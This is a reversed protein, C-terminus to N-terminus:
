EAIPGVYRTAVVVHDFWVVHRRGEPEHHRRVATDTVYYLLWFFNLKLREDTRFDFGEFAEGTEDGLLDFGMGTWKGRQVGRHVDMILKGDLWLALRGDRQGPTNLKMMVEVCQWRGRPAAQPQVPWISNGWYKGDASKKMEHWYTYFNWDGPAQVKGNRGFPEIGVTVREDGRPKEGAGGQPWRTAPRYGGLHVFHHVYGADQPFKVYFRAFVQDVGDFTTYLHGGTNHDLSATMQIARKGGSGPASDAALAMVDGGKNSMEGWRKAIDQLDGREFDEAFLVAPDDGIGRDGPHAKALGVGEPLPQAMVQTTVIVAVILTVRLM